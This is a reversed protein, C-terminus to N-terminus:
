RLCCNGHHGLQEAVTTSNAGTEQRLLYLLIKSSNELDILPAGEDLGHYNIPPGMDDTFLAGATVLHLDGHADTGGGIARMPCNEGMVARYAIAVRSLNENRPSRIDPGFVTTTECTVSAGGVDSWSAVLDAFIGTFLSDDQLVGESGNWGQGHHGLAYRIDVWLEVSDDEDKTQLQTLAYTTGNGEQFVPDYRSLLDPHNEGFARTGFAWRIFRSMEGYVNNALYVNDALYRREILCALFNTLSVLPNAGNARNQDPASGHQAGAVLTKLVVNGNDNSPIIQLDAPHYHPDDFPCTRYWGAVRQAFISLAERDGAIQAQAYVPIM